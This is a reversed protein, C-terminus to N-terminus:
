PSYWIVVELMWATPGWFKKAFSIYPNAKEEPVENYGYDNVRKGIGAASLGNQVDANLTEVLEDIGMNQYDVKPEKRGKEEPM